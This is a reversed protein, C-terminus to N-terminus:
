VGLAPVFSGGRVFTDRDHSHVAEAITRGDIKVTTHIPRKSLKDAFAEVSGEQRAAQAANLEAGARVQTAALIPQSAAIEQKEAPSVAAWPDPTIPKIKVGIANEDGVLAKEIDERVGKISDALGLDAGFFGAITDILGAAREAFGLLLQLVTNIYNKPIQKFTEWAERWQGHFLQSIFKFVLKFHRIVGSFIGIFDAILSAANSVMWGIAGAVVAAIGGIIAGLVKAIVTITEMAGGTKEGAASSDGFVGVLKGFADFVRGISRKVQDFIPSLFKFTKSFGASFGDWLAVFVAKINQFIGYVKIAFAGIGSNEAKDLEKQLKDSISGNDFLDGLAQFLLKVRSWVGEFFDAIGGVNNKFLVVFGAVVAGVVAIIGIFPLLPGILGSFSIGLLKVVSLLPGIASKFALFGGALTAVAAVGALLKVIFNRIPAPISNFGELIANVVKLITKKIPELGQGILILSSEKLGKFRSEQFSLTESMKKFAEETAGGKDGMQQLIENFKASGESTLATITNLGEVSGFLQSLSNNNFNASHTIQDLFQPLGGAKRLGDASFNVGLRAAEKAANATPQIVNTLAAKLGTVAESTGIGKTTVTATAALLDDFKIGLNDATAAVGGISSALEGATTKGARIAVFFADSAQAATVNQDGFANVVNTLGDVATKTDTVGGIALKNAADLLQTAKTSDTAGASIAQYLAQAQGKADGGFTATMDLAIDNMKAMSFSAEPVLTSVEAISKSFEKSVNVAGNLASLGAFGAGAIGVASGLKAFKGISLGTTEELQRELKRLNGSAGEAAGGLKTSTTNATKEVQRDFSGFAAKAANIAASLLDRGILDLSLSFGNLAV